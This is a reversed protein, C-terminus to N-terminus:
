DDSFYKLIANALKEGGFRVTDDVPIRLKKELKGIERLAEKEPMRNTMLNMGVVKSKKFFGVVMEHLKIIFKFDLIPDGNHDFIRGMEHCLIMADPVVGHILGMTVGSYGQHTLAGQGEVLIYDNRKASKVIELEMVGAVFDSKVADIVVGKGCILIGTQGTAIWDVSKGMKKLARYIEVTVSKKGIACDTGVTLIVRSKVKKWKGSAVHYINPPRRLDIVEINHRKAYKMIDKDDTLFTHLGNIVNLKYKIAEIIFKKWKEPLVGGVLAIGIVLTDPNFKLGEKISYIIPIDGGYGIVEECTKGATTSDIVALVEDPTYRIVGHATKGYSNKLMGEALVLMRRKKKM